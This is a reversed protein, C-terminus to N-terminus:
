TGSVPFLRFDATQTVLIDVLPNIFYNFIPLYAFNQTLFPFFLTLASGLLLLVFMFFLQWRYSKLYGFLHQLKIKQQVPPQLKYFNETPNLFLAIGKEDDSLWSERFKEESLTIFGHAPDAIRFKTTKRIFTEVVCHLVVFHNQNWHIICPLFKHNERLKEVTFKASLTEFGIKKAAETIGLLSVGERTLFCEDRLYEVPYRKGYASAVMSLCAPGCDMRDRQPSFTIYFM